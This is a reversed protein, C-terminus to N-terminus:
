ITEGTSFQSSNLDVRRIKNTTNGDSKTGSGMIVIDDKKACVEIVISKRKHSLVESTTSDESKSKDNRCLSQAEVVLSDLLGSNGQPSLPAVEYYGNNAMSSAGGMLGYIGSAYSLTPTISSPPSQSLSAETNSDQMLPPSEYPSSPMAANSNFGYNYSGSHYDHSNNVTFSQNFLSSSSSGYPSVLSLPLGVNGNASKENPFKFQPNLPSTYHCSDPMNQQTNVSSPHSLENIEQRYSSSLLPSFSFSSSTYSQTLHQQLQDYVNAEHLVEPPYLPLGARQCRKM